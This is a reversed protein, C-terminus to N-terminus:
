RLVVRVIRTKKRRSWAIFQRLPLFFKFWTERYVHNYVNFVSMLRLSNRGNKGKNYFRWMLQAECSRNLSLTTVLVLSASKMLSFQWFYLPKWCHNGGSRLSLIVTQFSSYFFRAFQKLTNKLLKCQKTHRQALRNGLSGFLRSLVGM